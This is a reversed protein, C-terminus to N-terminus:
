QLDIKNSYNNDFVRMIQAIHPIEFALDFLTFKFEFLSIYGKVNRDIRAFLEKTSVKNKVMFTHFKDIIKQKELHTLTHM